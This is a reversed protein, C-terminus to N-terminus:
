HKEFWRLHKMSSAETVCLSEGWRTLRLIPNKTLITEGVPQGNAGLNSSREIIESQGLRIQLAQAAADSTAFRQCSNSVHGGDSLEYAHYNEKSGCADMGGIVRLEESVRERSGYAEPTDPLTYLYWVSSLLVGIAFTLLSISFYVIQRKITRM